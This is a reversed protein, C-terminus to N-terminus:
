RMWTAWSHAGASPRPRRSRSARSASCRRCCARVRPDAFALVHLARAYTRPCACRHRAVAPHLSATSSRPRRHARVDCTWVHRGVRLRVEVAGERVLVGCAAPDGSRWLAEGAAAALVLLAAAPARAPGCACAGPVRRLTMAEELQTKQASTLQSLVSNAAIADWASHMRSAALAAARAPVDTGQMACGYARGGAGGGGWVCVCARVQLAWVIEAAPFVVVELDTLAIVDGAALGDAALGDPAAAALCEDGFYDDVALHIAAAAAGHAPPTPPTGSVATPSGGPARAAGGGPVPKPATLKRGALDPLAQSVVVRTFVFVNKYFRMSTCWCFLCVYVYISPPVVGRKRHRVSVADGGDGDNDDDSSDSESSSGASGDGGARATETVSPLPPPAVAAAAAAAPEEWSTENTAPNWYYSTGQAV